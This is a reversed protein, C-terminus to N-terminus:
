KSLLKALARNAKEPDSCKFDTHLINCLFGCEVMEEIFKTAEKWEQFTESGALTQHCDGSWVDVQIGTVSM